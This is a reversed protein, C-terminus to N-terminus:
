TSPETIRDSAPRNPPRASTRWKVQHPPRPKGGRYVGMINYYLMKRHREFGVGVMVGMRPAVGVTMPVIRRQGM